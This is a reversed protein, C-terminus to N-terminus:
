EAHDRISAITCRRGDVILKDGRGDCVDSDLGELAIDQAFRLSGCDPYVEIVKRPRTDVLIRRDDLTSFSRVSMMEFCSGRPLAAAVDWESRAGDPGACGPALALGLLCLWTQAQRARSGRRVTQM